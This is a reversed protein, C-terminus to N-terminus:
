CHINATETLVSGQERESVIQSRM